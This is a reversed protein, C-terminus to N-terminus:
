RATEPLEAKPQLAALRDRLIYYSKKLYTHYTPEEWPKWTYFPIGEDKFRGSTSAAPLTALIKRDAARYAALYFRFGDTTNHGAGGRPPVPDDLVQRTSPDTLNLLNWGIRLEIFGEDRNDRWEVLDDYQPSAPDMTGYRLPSRNYVIAPYITGDRGIRRRSTEALMEIFVGDKNEQSKWPRTFRNTHLDYPVDCLVRSTAPGSLDVVFEMGTPTTLGLDFPMTHDGEAAGYTDIGIAYHIADWDLRDVDLRMYIYAEDHTVQLSRLPGAGDGAVTPVGRWDDGEGDITVAWGDKGPKCALLGYNQEPDLINLWNKNNDWPVEFAIVLWNKKFWEDIWSFLVGGACGAQQIDEFMRADLEGQERENHGGHNWGQPQHHAIGRSTPVGFEAILLPMDHHHAKLERLYGLYNSPGLHDATKLYGPDVNMFDPYYPYAHYSAFMGAAMRRTPKIRNADISMGDNDYELVTGPEQPLGLKKLLAIEEKKTAETPHGIPDLTPWNTFSVPRQANYMRMEHSVALDMTQAIWAEIPTGETMTFWAGAFSSPHPRSDDYAAVSYPEWERGLIYALTMRSVDATYLGYAHGRRHAAALNGHVADIVRRIEELFQGVFETNDYADNEPLETWVGQALWLFGDQGARADNHDRLAEYFEPPLLTYLRVVNAGMDSMKALWDLYVSKDRPFESPYKGPLAAGLNIGKVFIPHWPSGASRVHFYDRGAKAVVIPEASVDGGRLERGLRRDDLTGPRGLVQDAVDTLDVDPHTRALTIVTDLAERNRGLRASARAVGELPDANGPSLKLATQFAALAAEMRGLRYRCWGLLSLYGVPDEPPSAKLETELIHAAQDFRGERYLTLARSYASTPEDPQTQAVSAQRDASSADSSSSFAPAACVVSTVVVLGVLAVNRVLEAPCSHLSRITPISRM